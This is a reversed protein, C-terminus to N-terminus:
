KPPGAADDDGEGHHQPMHVFYHRTLSYLLYVALNVIGSVILTTTLPFYLNYDSVAFFLDGPLRGIDLGRAQLVRIIALLVFIAGLM